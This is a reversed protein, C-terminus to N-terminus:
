DQRPSSKAAITDAFVFFRPSEGGRPPLREKMLGFEQERMTERGRRAGTGGAAGRIAARVARETAWLGRPRTGAPGGGGVFWRAVEQGAGIEAFTGYKTNDLNIQIAKQHTDLRNIEM